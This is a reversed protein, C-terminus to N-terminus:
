HAMVRDVMEKFARQQNLTDAHTASERAALQTFVQLDSDIMEVDIRGGNADSLGKYILLASIPDASGDTKAKYCKANTGEPLSFGKELRRRLLEILENLQALTSAPRNTYWHRKQRENVLEQPSNGLIPGVVSVIHLLKSSPVM